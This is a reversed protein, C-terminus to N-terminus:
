ASTKRVLAFGTQYRGSPFIWIEDSGTVLYSWLSMFIKENKTSFSDNKRSFTHARCIVKFANTGPKSPQKAYQMSIEDYIHLQM